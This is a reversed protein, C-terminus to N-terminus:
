FCRELLKLGSTKHYGVPEMRSDTVAKSVGSILDGTRFEHKAQAAKGIGVLFDGGHRDIKGCLRLSYGLHTHSREDFSRMLRIRPQISLLRGQRSLKVNSTVDM